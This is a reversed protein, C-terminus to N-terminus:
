WRQIHQPCQSWPDPSPVIAYLLTPPQTTLFPVTYMPVGYVYTHLVSVGSECKNYLHQALIPGFADHRQHRSNNVNTKRYLIYDRHIFFFDKGGRGWQIKFCSQKVTYDKAWFEIIDALLQVSHSTKNKINEAYFATM